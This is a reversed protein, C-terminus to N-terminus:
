QNICSGIYAARNGAATGYVGAQHVCRTARDQYTETGNPGSGVGLPLNPLLRGTQPVYIPPPVTPPRAVLSHSGPPVYHLPPPLPTPYVMVSSGRRVKLARARKKEQLKKKM